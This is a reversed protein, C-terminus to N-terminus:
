SSNQGDNQEIFYALKEGNSEKKGLFNTFACYIKAPNSVVAKISGM